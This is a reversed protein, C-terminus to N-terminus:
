KNKKGGGITFRVGLSVQSLFGTNLYVAQHKNSALALGGLGAYIMVNKTPTFFIGPSISFEQQAYSNNLQYNGSVKDFVKLRYLGGAANVYWGWKSKSNFYRYYNYSVGVGSKTSYGEYVSLGSANYRTHSAFFGLTSHKSLGASLSGQYITNNLRLFNRTVTIDPYVAGPQVQAQIASHIIALAVTLSITKIM